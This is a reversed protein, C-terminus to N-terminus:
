PHTQNRPSTERRLSAAQGGRIESFYVFWPFAARLEKQVMRIASGALRTTLFHDEDLRSNSATLCGSVVKIVTKKVRHQRIDANNGCLPNRATLM